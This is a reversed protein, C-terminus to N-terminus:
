NNRKIRYLEPYNDFTTKRLSSYDMGKFWISSKTERTIVSEIWEGSGNKYEIIIGKKLEQSTKIEQTTM